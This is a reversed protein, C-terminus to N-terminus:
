KKIIRKMETGNDTNIQLLYMGQSLQSMDISEKKSQLVQQGINNYIKISKLNSVNKIHLVDGVPNPYVLIKEATVDNTSLTNPGVQLNDFAFYATGSDSTVTFATVGTWNLDVATGQNTVIAAVVPSNSGGTPTFTWNAGAGGVAELALISTVDVAQDFTFTMSTVQASTYMLNDTSGGLGGGNLVKISTTLPVTNVTLGVGDVTETINDGNDLATEFTFLYPVPPVYTDPGVQLNDFAFYATGSDSTVTFATVGTWNLDVATGQSTVIAAVVPSNSGGTPTFTWNAGAGGVAELALISTVDVAQDFTFTM